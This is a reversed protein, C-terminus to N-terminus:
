NKKSLQVKKPSVLLKIKEKISHKTIWKLIHLNQHNEEKASISRDQIKM